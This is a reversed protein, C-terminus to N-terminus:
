ICLVLLMLVRLTLIQDTLNLIKIVLYPLVQYCHDVLYMYSKMCNGVLYAIIYKDVVQCVKMLVVKMVQCM